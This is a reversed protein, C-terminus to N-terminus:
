NDEDDESMTFVTDGGHDSSNPSDAGENVASSPTIKTKSDADENVTKSNAGENVTSSPTIKTHPVAGENVTSSPTIRSCPDAGENVTSSPTIRLRSDAGENMISFPNKHGIVPILSDTTLDTPNELTLPPPSPSPTPPPTRTYPSLWKSKVYDAKRWPPFPMGKKRLSQKAAESVLYIIKQLRDDKGVFIVPLTELIRNYPKTSRAIEFESRFDIDVILREEERIVDIYEYEGTCNFEM